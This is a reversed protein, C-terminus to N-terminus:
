YIKMSVFKPCIYIDIGTEAARMLHAVFDFTHWTNLSKSVSKLADNKVMKVLEKLMMSALSALILLEIIYTIVLFIQIKM